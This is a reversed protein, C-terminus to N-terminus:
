PKERASRRVMSPKSSKSAVPAGGVSYGLTKFDNTKGDPGGSPHGAHLGRGISEEM